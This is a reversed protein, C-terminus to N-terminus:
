SFKQSIKSCRYMGGYVVPVLGHVLPHYLKETIYDNCLSNEMSLYFLYNPRLVKLWCSKEYPHKKFCKNEGCSGYTDVEVYKQLERVYEERKSITPCHSSMWAILKPRQTFYIWESKM